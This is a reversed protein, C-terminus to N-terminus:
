YFSAGGHIDDGSKVAWPTLLSERREFKSEAGTEQCAEPWLIEWKTGSGEERKVAGAGTRGKERGEKEKCAEM